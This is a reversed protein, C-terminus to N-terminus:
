SGGQEHEALEAGCGKGTLGGGEKREAGGGSENTVSPEELVGRWGEPNAESQCTRGGTGSACRSIAARSELEPTLSGRSFFQTTTFCLAARGARHRSAPPAFCM